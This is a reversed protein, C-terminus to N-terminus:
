EEEEDMYAKKGKARSRESKVPAKLENLFEKMQATTLELEIEEEGEKTSKYIFLKNKKDIKYKRGRIEFSASSDENKFNKLQRGSIQKKVHDILDAYSKAWNKSDKAMAKKYVHENLKDFSEFNSIHKM